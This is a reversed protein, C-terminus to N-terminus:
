KCPHCTAFKWNTSQKFYYISSEYFTSYARFFCFCNTRFRHRVECMASQFELVFSGCRQTGQSRVTTKLLGGKVSRQSLFNMETQLLSSGGAFVVKWFRVRRRNSAPRKNRFRLSTVFWFQSAPCSLACFFFPQFVKRQLRSKQSFCPPLQMANVFGIQEWCGQVTRLMIKWSTEFHVLLAGAVTSVTVTVDVTAHLISILEDFSPEFTMCVREADPRQFHGFLRVTRKSKISRHQWSSVNCFKDYCTVMFFKIPHPQTPLQLESDQYSGDYRNGSRLFFVNSANIKVRHKTFCGYSTIHWLM